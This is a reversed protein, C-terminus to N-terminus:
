VVRKKTKIYFDFDFLIVRMMSKIKMLSIMKMVLKMAKIIRKMRRGIVPIAKKNKM